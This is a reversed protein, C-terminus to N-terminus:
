PPGAFAGLAWLRASSRTLRRERLICPGWSGVTVHGFAVRCLSLCFGRLLGRMHSQECFFELFAFWGTVALDAVALHPGSPVPQSFPSPHGTLVGTFLWGM